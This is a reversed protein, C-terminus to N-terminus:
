EGLGLLEAMNRPDRGPDVGSIPGPLRAERLGQLQPPPPEPVAEPEPGRPANQSGRVGTESDPPEACHADFNTPAPTLDNAPRRPTGEYGETCSVPDGYNFVFAQHGTDEDDTMGPTFATMVPLEVLMQEIADTRSSTIQTTTLLNATLVGLESGSNHLLQDVHEATEPAQALLGRVAPDSDSLEGAVENVSSSFRRIQDADQQQTELVTRGQALLSKTQPLNDTAEQTLSHASDLMTQLHPGVGRFAADGEDLVTRLSDQPISSALGDLSTLLQEPPPPLRPQHHRLEAGDALYPPGGDRPELDLFQEGIASRNAVVVDTAAPIPPASDEIRVQARVGTETLQIDQVRGVAVGRYTVEANPFIGGSEPLPVVISYGNGGFLRDLGAYNGGVYVVGTAAIVVFLVLQLRMWRTIM